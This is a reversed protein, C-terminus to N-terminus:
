RDWLMQEDHSRSLKPYRTLWSGDWCNHWGWFDGAKMCAPATTCTQTQVSSFPSTRKADFAIVAYLHQWKSTFARLIYQGLNHQKPINMIKLQSCKFFLLHLSLSKESNRIQRFVSAGFPVWHDHLGELLKMLSPLPVWRQLSPIVGCCVCM